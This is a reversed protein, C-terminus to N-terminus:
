SSAAQLLGTLKIGMPIGRAVLPRAESTDPPARPGLMVPASASVSQVAPAPVLASPWFGHNM